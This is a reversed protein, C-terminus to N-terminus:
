AADELALYKIQDKYIFLNPEGDRTIRVFSADYYEVCGKFVQNDLLKVEVPVQQDILHRLFKPEEFTQEPAKTSAKAL